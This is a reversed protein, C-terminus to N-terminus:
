LLIYTRGGMLDNFWLWIMFYRLLITVFLLYLNPDFPVTKFQGNGAVKEKIETKKNCNATFLIVPDSGRIEPIRPSLEVLQEM